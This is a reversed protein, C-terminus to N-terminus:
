VRESIGEPQRAAAATEIGNRLLQVPKGVADCDVRVQPARL